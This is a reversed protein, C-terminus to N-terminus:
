NCSIKQILITIFSGIIVSLVNLAWEKLRSYRNDIVNRGAITIGLVSVSVPAGTQDEIPEGKILEANLLEWAPRAYEGTAEFHQDIESAKRLIDYHIRKM